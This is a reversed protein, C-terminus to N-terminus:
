IWSVILPSCPCQEADLANGQHGMWPSELEALGSKSANGQSSLEVPGSVTVALAM